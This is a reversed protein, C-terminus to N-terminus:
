RVVDSSQIGIEEGAVLNTGTSLLASISHIKPFEKEASYWRKGDWRAASFHVEPDTGTRLNFEGGFYLDSGFAAIARVEVGARAWGLGHPGSDQRMTFVMEVADDDSTRASADDALTSTQALLLTATIICSLLGAFQKLPNSDPM